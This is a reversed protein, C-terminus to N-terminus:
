PPGRSSPKRFVDPGFPYMFQSEAGCVPCQFTKSAHTDGTSDPQRLAALSAVVRSAIGRAQGDCASNDTPEISPITQGTVGGRQRWERVRDCTDQRAETSRWYYQDTIRKKTKRGAARCEMGCYKHNRFCSRCVYFPQRCQQCTIRLLALESTGSNPAPEVCAM